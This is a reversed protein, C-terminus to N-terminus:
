STPGKKKGTAYDGLIQGATILANICEGQYDILDVAKRIANNCAEKIEDRTSETNNFTDRYAKIADLMELEKKDREARAEGLKMIDM